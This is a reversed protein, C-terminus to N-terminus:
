TVRMRAYGIVCQGIVGFPRVRQSIRGVIGSGTYGAVCFVISAYSSSFGPTRHTPCPL